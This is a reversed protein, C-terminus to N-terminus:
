IGCPHLPIITRRCSVAVGNSVESVTVIDRVNQINCMWTFHHRCDVHYRKTIITSAVATSQVNFGLARRTKDVSLTGERRRLTRSADQVSTAFRRESRFRNETRADRRRQRPLQIALNAIQPTVLSLSRRRQQPHIRPTIFNSAM